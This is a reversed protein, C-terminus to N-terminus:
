RTLIMLSFGGLYNVALDKNIFYIFKRITALIKQSLNGKKYINDNFTYFCDIIEFNLKKLDYLILDKNYFHLHGVKKRAKLIISKRLISNVSLDLPIHLIQFTSSKKIDSLFKFPNEVHEVVDACLIVDYKKNKKLNYNYYKIKKQKTNCMSFANKSIEYGFFFKRKYNQSLYKLIKGAGCGIECFTIFKLNNKSIIKKIQLFKFYSDESHWTSNYKLYDKEYYIKNFKM